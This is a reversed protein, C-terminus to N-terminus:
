YTERPDAVLHQVTHGDYACFLDNWRVARAERERRTFEM